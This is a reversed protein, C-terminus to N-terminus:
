RINGRMSSSGDARQAGDTDIAAVPKRLIWGLYLAWSLAIGAVLMFRPNHHAVAWAMLGLCAIAFILNSALLFNRAQAREKPDTLM